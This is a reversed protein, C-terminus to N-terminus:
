DRPWQETPVGLAIRYADGERGVLFLATPPKGYPNDPEDFVVRIQQTIPMTAKFRGQAKMDRLQDAPSPELTISRIPRGFGYRLQWSVAPRRMKSAGDWNVLQESTAFDHDQLATRVTSVVQVDTSPLAVTQAAAASGAALLCGLAVSGLWAGLRPAWTGAKM